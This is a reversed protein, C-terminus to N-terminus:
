YSNINFNQQERCYYYYYNYTQKASAFIIFFLLINCYFELLLHIVEHIMQCSRVDPLTFLNIDFM